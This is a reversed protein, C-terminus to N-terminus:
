KMYILKRMATENGAELVCFYVGGAVDEGADNRGDWHVTRYGAPERGSVLTRVERGALIDGRDALRHKAAIL